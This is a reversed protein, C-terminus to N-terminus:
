GFDNLLGVVATHEPIFTAAQYQFCVFSVFYVLGMFHFCGGGVDLM